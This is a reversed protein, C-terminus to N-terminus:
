EFLYGKARLADKIAKLQAPTEFAITHLHVGGTLESLLRGDHQKMHGVFLNVDTRTKIQLQGRLQGYLPHDVIVDVLTGGHDVITTMEDAAQAPTHRCVIVASDTAPQEYQYGQPTAIIAEGQARMLAIDGVITQRSVGFHHAFHSATVPTDNDSLTAKMQSQRQASTLM